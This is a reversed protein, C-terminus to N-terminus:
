FGINLGIVWSKITTGSGYSTSNNDYSLLDTDLWKCKKYITFPNMAQVYVKLNSMGLKSTMNKPFTYGLSINRMKIYSGDQYNMSSSYTDANQGQSGPSYYEADENIDKIWYDVDRMAYMGGLTEAGKAVTFKWRAYIFCSLEFNKYSFTNHWGGSWRPRVKGVIQRDNADIKGDPNVDKVKIQGPKRGFKAAEEAESTKWIGDYVYDYYVGIEEGVFLRDNVNKEVGNNLKDVRNRDITWTLSTNWEFDKTKVPIANLQLDLGWGSTEGVNAYTSTYGTLSPITTALILDTTKNHYYDVSGSIRNNIFGFDLGINWQKTKEWGLDLNAMKNPNKASADSPLYGVTPDMSGWAYYNSQVAGQTAYASVAYNGSIGYGLRLKLNSIFDAKQM